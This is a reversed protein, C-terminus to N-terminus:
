DSQLMIHAQTGLMDWVYNLYSRPIHMRFEQDGIVVIMCNIGHWRRMVSASPCRLDIETGSQFLSLANAGKLEIICYTASADTIALGETERWGPAIKSGNVVLIRDRRLRLAHHEDSVMDPWGHATPTQAIKVAAKFDGSILTQSPTDCVRIEVGSGALAPQTLTIPEPWRHTDNRM